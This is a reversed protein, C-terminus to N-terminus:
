RRGGRKRKRLISPDKVWDPWLEPKDTINVGDNHFRRWPSAGGVLSSDPVARCFALTPARESSGRSLHRHEGVMTGGHPLVRINFPMRIMRTMISSNLSIKALLVATM